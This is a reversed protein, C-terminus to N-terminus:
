KSYYTGSIAMAKDLENRLITLVNKVGQEGNHFLGWVIPRGIFVMKAGLGLAKFM